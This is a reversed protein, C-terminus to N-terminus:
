SPNRECTYLGAVRLSENRLNVFAACPDPAQWVAGLVADVWGFHRAAVADRREVPLFSAELANRKHTQYGMLALGAVVAIGAGLLISRWQTQILSPLPQGGAPPPTQAPPPTPSANNM